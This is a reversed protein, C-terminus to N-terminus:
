PHKAKARVLQKVRSTQQSVNALSARLEDISTFAAVFYRKLDVIDKVTAKNNGRLQLLAAIFEEFYLDQDSGDVDRFLHGSMEALVHVDLGLDVLGLVASPTRLISLLDKKSVHLQSTDRCNGMGQQVQLIQKVETEVVAIQMYVREYEAVEAVGEVIVAILVNMIMISGLVLMTALALTPLLGESTVERFLDYINDAMAVRLFLTLMANAVSDFYM